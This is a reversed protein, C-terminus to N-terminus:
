RILLVGVLLVAFAAMVTCFIKLQLQGYRSLADTDLYYMGPEAERLINKWILLKAPQYRRIRDWNLDLQDFSVASERSVANANKFVRIIRNMKMNVAATPM